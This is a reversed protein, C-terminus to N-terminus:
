QPAADKSPVKPDIEFTANANGSVVPTGANMRDNINSGVNVQVIRCDGKLVAGLVECQRYVIDNLSQNVSAMAKTLDASSAGDVRPASLQFNATVRIFKDDVGNFRRGNQAQAQSVSTLGVLLLTSTLKM